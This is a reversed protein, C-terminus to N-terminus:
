SIVITATVVLRGNLVVFILRNEDLFDFYKANQKSRLLINIRAEIRDLKDCLKCVMRNSYVEGRVRVSIESYWYGCFKSITMKAFGNNRM